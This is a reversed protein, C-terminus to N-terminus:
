DNLTVVFNLRNPNAPDPYYTTVSVSRYPANNETGFQLNRLVYKGSHGSMGMWMSYANLTAIFDMKVNDATGRWKEFQNITMNWMCFQRMDCSWPTPLVPDQAEFPYLTFTTLYLQDRICNVMSSGQTGAKSVLNGVGADTFDPSISGARSSDNMACIIRGPPKPGTPEHYGMISLASDYSIEVTKITLDKTGALKDKLKGRLSDTYKAKVRLDCNQPPHDGKCDFGMILVTGILIAVIWRSTRM